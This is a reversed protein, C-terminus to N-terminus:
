WLAGPKLERDWIALEWQNDVERPLAYTKTNSEIWGEREKGLETWLDTTQAQGASLNRLVM